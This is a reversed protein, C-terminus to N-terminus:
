NYKVVRGHYINFGTYSEVNRARKQGNSDFVSEYFEDKDASGFFGFVWDSNM